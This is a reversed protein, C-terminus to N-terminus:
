VKNLYQDIFSHIINVDIDKNKTILIFEHIINAPNQNPDMVFAFRDKIEKTKQRDEKKKKDKMMDKIVIKLRKEGAFKKRLIDIGNDNLIKQDSLLIKLRVHFNPDSLMYEVSDMVNRYDQVTELSKTNLLVTQYTDTFPNEIREMFYSKDDTDFVTYLFGKKKEENFSWRSLSRTYYMHSTDNIEEGDHWHGGIMLRVRNVFYDYKFIISKIGEIESEQVAINPAVIDFTGHFFMIDMPANQSFYNGYLKYYDESAMNEDPAYLIKVGPLTEEICVENYIRFFDNGKEESEVEYPRFVELQNNDHSNTGKIMRIKIKRYKCIQVLAAMWDISAKAAKSNLSLKADFYDGAIVVLQLNNMEQIVMLPLKMEEKQRNIDFADWHIDGLTIIGYKM